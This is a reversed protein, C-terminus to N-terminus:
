QAYIIGMAKCMKRANDWGSSAARALDTADHCVRYGGHRIDDNSPNIEEAGGCTGCTSCDEFDPSECHCLENGGWDCTSETETYALADEGAKESYYYYHQYEGPIILTVGGPGVSSADHLVIRMDDPWRIM